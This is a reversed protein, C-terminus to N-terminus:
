GRGGMMWVMGVSGGSVLFHSTITTFNDPLYTILFQPRYLTRYIILFKGRCEDKKREGESRDVM